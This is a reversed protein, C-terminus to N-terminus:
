KSNLKGQYYELVDQIVQSKIESYKELGVIKAFPEWKENDIDLLDRWVEYPIDNAENIQSIARDWQTANIYEEWHKLTSIRPATCLLRYKWDIKMNKDHKRKKIRGTIANEIYVLGKFSIFASAEIIYGGVIFPFLLSIACCKMSKCVCTQQDNYEEEFTTYCM